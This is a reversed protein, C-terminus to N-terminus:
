QKSKTSHKIYHKILKISNEQTLSKKKNYAGSLCIVTFANLQNPWEKWTETELFFFQATYYYM